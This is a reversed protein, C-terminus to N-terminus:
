VAEWKQNQIYKRAEEAQRAEAEAQRERAERLLEDWPRPFHTREEGPVGLIAEFDNRIEQRIETALVRAESWSRAPHVARVFLSGDPLGDVLDLCEGM